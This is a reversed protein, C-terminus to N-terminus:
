CGPNPSPCPYHELALTSVFRQLRPTETPFNVIREEFRTYTRAFVFPKFINTKNPFPHNLHHFFVSKRQGNRSAENKKEVWAM